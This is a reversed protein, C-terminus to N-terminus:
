LFPHAILIINKALDHNMLQGDCMWVQVAGCAFFQRKKKDGHHMRM